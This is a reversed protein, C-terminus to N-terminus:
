CRGAKVRVVSVWRDHRGIRFSPLLLLSVDLCQTRENLSELVTSALAHLFALSLSLSLTM